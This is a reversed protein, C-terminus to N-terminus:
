SGDDSDEEVLTYYVPYPSNPRSWEEWYSERFELDSGCLLEELVDEESRTASCSIADVGCRLVDLYQQATIKKLVAPM